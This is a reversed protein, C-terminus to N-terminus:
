WSPLVVALPAGPEVAAGPEVSLGLGLLGLVLGALWRRIVNPSLRGPEPREPAPRGESRDCVVEHVAGHLDFVFVTEPRSEAQHTRHGNRDIREM